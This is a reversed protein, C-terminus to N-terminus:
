WTIVLGARRLVIWLAILAGLGVLIRLCGAAPVPGTRGITKLFARAADEDWGVNSMLHALAEQRRGAAMLDLLTRAIKPNLRGDSRHVVRLADVAEKAEKLGVRAYRRYAQIAEVVHGERIAVMAAGEAERLGKLAVPRASAGPAGPEMANIAATAEALGVDALKRFQRVAEIRRGSAVLREIERKQEGTLKV